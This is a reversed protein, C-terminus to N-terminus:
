PHGPELGPIRAKCGHGLPQHCQDQFGSIGFPDPLEFRGPQTICGHQRDADPRWFRFHHDLEMRTHQFINQKHMPFRCDLIQAVTDTSNLFEDTKHPFTSWKHDNKFSRIGLGGKTLRHETCLFCCLYNQSIRLAHLSRSIPCEMSDKSFIVPEPIFGHVPYFRSRRTVCHLAFAGAHGSASGRTSDVVRRHLPM